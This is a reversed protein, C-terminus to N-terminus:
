IQAMQLWTSVATSGAGWHTKDKQVRAVVHM